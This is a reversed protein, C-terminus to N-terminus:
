KEKGVKAQELEELAMEFLAKGTESHPRYGFELSSDHPMKCWFHMEAIRNESAHTKRHVFALISNRAKLASAIDSYHVTAEHGKSHYSVAGKPFLYLPM